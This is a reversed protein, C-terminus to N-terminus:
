WQGIAKAFRHAGNSNGKPLAIQCEPRRRWRLGSAAALRPKVHLLFKYWTLTADEEVIVPSGYKKAEALPMM